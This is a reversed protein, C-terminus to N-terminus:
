LEPMEGQLLRHQLDDIETTRDDTALNVLVVGVLRNARVYYATVHPQAIDLSGTVRVRDPKDTDGLVNMTVAGLDSFFLAQHVYPEDAGAMNRGAQKGQWLANDWHELRRPQKTVPDVFRTIDGAAWVSEGSTELRVNVVLGGRDIQFGANALWETNPEAGVGAVAVDAPFQQNTETQVGSLRGNATLFRTVRAGTLVTIGLHELLRRFFESLAADAFTRYVQPGSELVTVDAGLERATVAVEMGVFGGGVCVLRVGPKLVSRLQSSEAVARLSLVGPADHGPANLRRARCGTALLLRDYAEREGSELTLSKKKLHISRAVQGLRVRVGHDRYWKLEHVRLSEVPDRGALYGKSLPPRHYPLEREATVLVIEGAADLERIGEIASAAALGGGVIVYRTSM